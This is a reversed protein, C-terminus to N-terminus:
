GFVRYLNDLTAGWGQARENAFNRDGGKELLTVETEDGLDLFRIDCDTLSVLAGDRHLTTTFALRDPVDVIRYAGKEVFPSEGPPAFSLSFSGGIRLDVSEVDVSWDAGPCFWKSLDVPDVWAQFVREVVAPYVRRVVLKTENVFFAEEKRNSM